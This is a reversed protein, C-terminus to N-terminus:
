VDFLFMQGDTRPETRPIVAEAATFGSELLDKIRADILSLEERMALLESDSRAEEYKETLRGPMHKVYKGHKFRPHAIGTLSKGGHMRCRTAGPTVYRKCPHGDESQKTKAGCRRSDVVALEEDM